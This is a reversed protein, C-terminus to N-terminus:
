PKPPTVRHMTYQRLADALLGMAFVLVAFLMSAVGVGALFLSRGLLALVTAALGIAILVLSLVIFLKIPNYFLIASVIYQLMRLSDRFLRVKTKGVRENYAIPVYAVYRYQLMYALTISTTFSFANSLFPFFPMADARSFVRMGSNADPIRRGATFEVLLQLLRRLPAKIWSERYYRGTREGVVMHFGERYKAVLDGIRDAPYTGDADLIVITDHRAAAIGVKLSHGYGINQRNRVVHAGAREAEAATGDVSGDDVVIV